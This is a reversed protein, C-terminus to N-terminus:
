LTFAAKNVWEISAEKELDHVLKFLAEDKRKAEIMCDVQEVSGKISHFFDLLLSPEIFEAHAKFEKESRPSSIHIKPPLASHKWTNLIREWYLTWDKNEHNALHHHIDFVLPIGLKECLYLVDEVHFSTDDNELMILRQISEPILGWNHIFQELAKEKDNYVGGVHLVCRHEPPIGMGMLLKRHMGLTKLSSKLVDTDEGNLVVFHDPHFDVRMKPHALLFEKVESLEEALPRIYNWDKVDEHNALPIIKSTLRFFEIDNAVNHRLLRLCNKLNSKAIRELKRIAAERDPIKIFQSHTMTQSPSANQLSMSMAVYGLRVLM